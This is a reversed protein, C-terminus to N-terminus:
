DPVEIIRQERYLANRFSGLETETTTMAALDYEKAIIEINEYSIGLDKHYIIIKDGVEYDSLGQFDAYEDLGELEAHKIRINVNPEKYAEYYAQADALFQAESDTEYHFLIHKYRHHPFLANPVDPNVISTSHGYNDEAILYTICESDDITMRISAMNYGYRIVGTNKGGEITSNLSFRFNDRFLKGGWRTIFANDAGLLAQVISMNEYYATRPSSIDSTGTFGAGTAGTRNQFLYNIADQGNLNTPRVDDLFTHNLDYFIHNAEGKKRLIGTEDMRPETLYLRFLQPRIVGRYPLPLKLIAGNVFYDSKGDPDVEIEMQADFRGNQEQRVTGSIPVIMANGNTEFNLANSDYVRIPMCVLRSM